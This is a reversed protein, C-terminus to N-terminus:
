YGYSDEEDIIDFVVKLCEDEYLSDGRKYFLKGNPDLLWCDKDTLDNGTITSVVRFRVKM